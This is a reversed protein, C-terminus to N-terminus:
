AREGTASLLRGRALAPQDQPRAQGDRGRSPLRPISSSNAVVPKDSDEDDDKDKGTLSDKFERM